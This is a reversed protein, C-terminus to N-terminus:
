SSSFVLLFGSVQQNVKCSPQKIINRVTDVKETSKCAHMLPSLGERDCMNVDASHKVLVLPHNWIRVYHLGVPKVCSM